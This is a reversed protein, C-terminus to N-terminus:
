LLSRTRLAKGKPLRPQAQKRIDAIAEASLPGNDREYGPLVEKTLRAIAMHVVAMESLKLQRALAKLTQRTIGYPSDKSRFKLLLTSVIDFSELAHFTVIVGPSIGM